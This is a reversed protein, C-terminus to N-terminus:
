DREIKEEGIRICNFLAKLSHKPSSLDSAPQNKGLVLIEFVTINVM